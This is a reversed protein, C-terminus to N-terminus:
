PCAPDGPGRTSFSSTPSDAARTPPGGNGIPDVQSVPHQRHHTAAAVRAEDLVRRAQDHRGVAHLGDTLTRASTQTDPRRPRTAPPLPRLLRPVPRSRVETRRPRSPLRRRPRAAVGGRRHRRRPPPGCRHRGTRAAASQRWLPWGAPDAPDAPAM